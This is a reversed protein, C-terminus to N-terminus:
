RSILYTGCALFFVLVPLLQVCCFFVRYASETQQFPIYIRPFGPFHACILMMLGEIGVSGVINKLM